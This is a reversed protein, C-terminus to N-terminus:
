QMRIKCIFKFKQRMQRVFMASFFELSEFVWKDKTQKLM